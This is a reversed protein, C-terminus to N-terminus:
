MKEFIIRYTKQLNLVVIKVLDFLIKLELILTDYQDHVFSNQTVIISYVFPYRMMNNIM